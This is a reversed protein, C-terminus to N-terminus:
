LPYETPSSSKQHIIANRLSFSFLHVNEPLSEVFHQFGAASNEMRRDREIEGNRKKEKRVWNTCQLNICIIPFSFTVIINKSHFSQFLLLCSSSRYLM